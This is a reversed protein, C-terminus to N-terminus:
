GHSNSSRLCMRRRLLIYILVMSKSLVDDEGSVAVPKWRNCTLALESPCNEMNIRRNMVDLILLHGDPTLGGVVFTGLMVKIFDNMHNVSTIVEGRSIM